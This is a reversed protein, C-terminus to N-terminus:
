KKHEDNMYDDHRYQSNHHQKGQAQGRNRDDGQDRQNREQKEQSQFVEHPRRSQERSRDYNDRNDQSKGQPKSFVPTLERNRRETGFENATRDQSQYEKQHDRQLHTYRISQDKKGVVETLRRGIAPYAPGHSSGFTHSTQRKFIEPPRAEKHEQRYEFRHHYNTEWHRDHRLEQLRYNRYCPDYGYRTAHASYWPHFGRAKYRPGFYDGFYYHHSDIRIFLSLFVADIDLVISPSYYYGRNRYIPHTYYIPAFMVGRHAFEYDWYGMIFVYGRPTWLYHAPIWIMEPRPQLWYGAQWVYRGQYWIWNGEMWLYDPTPSPSSPKAILPKPPPPLYVTETQGTNRWYGSVYQSGDEVQMWYGPIWERGPPIDRWIGSVWIFDNKDQDWSWYGAIWEVNNGEPRYDPPIEDIPEPVRRPIVASPQVENVNVGAFAEHIPGRLLVDVGEDTENAGNAVSTLGAQLLLSVGILLCIMTFKRFLLRNLM